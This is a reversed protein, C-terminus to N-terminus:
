CRRAAKVASLPKLLPSRSRCRRAAKAVALKIKHPRKTTKHQFATSFYLRTKRFGSRSQQARAIFGPVSQLKKTSHAAKHMTVKRSNQTSLGHQFLAANKSFRQPKTTRTCHLRTRVMAKKTSLAAKNKTVERNNRTSLGYQFLAANKSLRQPKTTRTCHLKTRIV